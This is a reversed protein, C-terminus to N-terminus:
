KKGIKIFIREVYRYLLFSVAIVIPATIAIGLILRVIPSLHLFGTRM